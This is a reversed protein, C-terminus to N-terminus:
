ERRIEELYPSNKPLGIFQHKGGYREQAMTLQCQKTAVYNSMILSVHSASPQMNFFINKVKLHVKVKFDRKLTVQVGISGGLLVARGLDEIYNKRCDACNQLRDGLVKFSGSTAAQWHDEMLLIEIIEIIICILYASSKLKHFEGSYKHAIHNVFWFKRM